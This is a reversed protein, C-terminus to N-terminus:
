SGVAMNLRQALYEAQQAPTQPPAAVGDAAQKALAEAPGFPNASASAYYDRGYDSLDVDAIQEIINLSSYLLREITAAQEAREEATLSPVSVIQSKAVALMLQIAAEELDTAQESAILAEASELATGASQAWRAARRAGAPTARGKETADEMKDRIDDMDQSRAILDSLRSAVSKILSTRNPASYVTM